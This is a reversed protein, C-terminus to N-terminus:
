HLAGKDGRGVYGVVREAVAAAHRISETISKPGQCAGAVFLGRSTNPQFFGHENRGLFDLGPISEPPSMGISLVVMDFNDWVNTGHSSHYLVEVGGGAAARVESPIARCLKVEEGAEELRRAFNREFTQIDMYFVTIELNSKKAKLLRALRLAYACCVQSCYNRGIHADRSGVCQIFAVRSISRGSPTWDFQANRLVEELELATLVGPIRGYGLRPKDTADFPTFGTTVVVADARVTFETESASLNLASRSCVDQCKACLDGHSRSCADYVIYPTQTVPSVRIAGPVCAQVCEGCATCLDPFIRIPEQVITAEFASGDERLRTVRSSLLHITRRSTLSENIAEIVLCAGCNQCAHTAKCALKVVHGGLFPGKEVIVSDYGRAALEKSCTLGAIGGGIILCHTDISRIANVCSSEQPTAPASQRREM